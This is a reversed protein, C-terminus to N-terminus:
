RRLRPKRTVAKGRRGDDATPTAKVSIQAGRPRRAFARRVKKSLRLRVTRSEKAALHFPSTAARLSRRGLKLRRVTKRPLTVVVTARVAVEGGVLRVKLGRRGVTKMRQKAVTMRLTVPKPAAATTDRECDAGLQDVSDFAVLDNGAGCSVFDQEGDKVDILDNGSGTAVLDTGGRAIVLAPVTIKSLDARDNRDGLDARVGVLGDSPCWPDFTEYGDPQSCPSQPAVPSQKDTTTWRPGQTRMAIDNVENAAGVFSMVRGKLAPEDATALSGASAPAALAFLAFLTVAALRM